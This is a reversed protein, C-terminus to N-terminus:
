QNCEENSVHTPEGERDFCYDGLEYCGCDGTVDNLLEKQKELEM